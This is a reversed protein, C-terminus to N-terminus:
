GCYRRVVEDLVPLGWRLADLSVREDDGHFLELFPEGPALRLPSFGYTPIGLRVTHKADTAFPAMVPLPIAAPDHARLVAGILDLLPHATPQLLPQGFRVIEVQCAPWLEEGIRERLMALVMEPTTGPLPRVDLEIEARGPIVNYKLGGHVVTPSVTDRLVARLARRQAPAVCLEDLAAEAAAPDAELLRLARDRAAGDLADALARIAAEMVPVVRRELPRALREIVRAALVAANDARPMSAHGPTGNVGIRVWAYGKEAVQVPYFHRGLLEVTMGGAENLAADAQVLEPRQDVIWGIGASGGAEEDATAAFIVDRRLGPMADRAPDVGAARAERALGLAVQLEMAVMAKMDLAGRGYIVGDVVQAGFPEHSWRAAEVPVVDLHSLLLLPGGGTGDGRLRAVVSGRGPFPELVEPALGEAALVDALYRAALIEDGPPNVTRLRILARLHEVLEAHAAEGALLDAPRADTPRSM